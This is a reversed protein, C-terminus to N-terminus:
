VGVPDTQSTASLSRSTVSGASNACASHLRLEPTLQKGTLLRISGSVFQSLVKKRAEGMKADNWEKKQRAGMGLGQEIEEEEERQLEAQMVEQMQENALTALDAKLRVTNRLMRSM